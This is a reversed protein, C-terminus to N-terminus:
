YETCKKGFSKGQPLVAFHRYYNSGSACHENM